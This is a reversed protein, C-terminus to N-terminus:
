TASKINRPIRRIKKRLEAPGHREKSKTSVTARRHALKPLYNRLLFESLSNANVFRDLEILAAKLVFKSRSLVLALISLERSHRVKNVNGDLHTALSESSPTQCCFDTQHRVGMNRLALFFQPRLHVVRKLTHIADQVAAIDM